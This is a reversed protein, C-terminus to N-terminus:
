PESDKTEQDALVEVGTGDGAKGSTRKRQQSGMETGGVCRSLYKMLEKITLTGHLKINQCNQNNITKLNTTVRIKTTHPLSVNRDIGGDQSSSSMRM